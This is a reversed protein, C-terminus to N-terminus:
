KKAARKEVARRVTRGRGTKGGEGPMDEPSQLLQLKRIHAADFSTIPSGGSEANDALIARQIEPPPTHDAPVSVRWRPLHWRKFRRRIQPRVIRYRQQVGDGDTSIVPMTVINVIKWGVLFVLFPTIALVAFVTDPRDFFYGFASASFGWFATNRWLAKRRRSFRNWYYDSYRPLVSGGRTKRVKGDMHLGTYFRWVIQWFTVRKHEAEM